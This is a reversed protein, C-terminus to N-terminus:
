PHNDRYFVGCVDLNLVRSRCFEIPKQTYGHLNINLSNELASPLNQKLIQKAALMGM